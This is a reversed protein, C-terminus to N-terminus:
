RAPAAAPRLDVIACCPAGGDPDLSVKMTTFDAHVAQGVKLTSLAKTDAVKFQFTRRTRTESATVTQTKADVATISCCPEAAQVPSVMAGTGPVVIPAADLAIALVLALTRRTNMSTM